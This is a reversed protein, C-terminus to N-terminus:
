KEWLKTWVNNEYKWFRAKTATCEFQFSLTDTVEIRISFIAAGGSPQESTFM